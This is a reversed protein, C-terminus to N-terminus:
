GIQNRSSPKELLLVDLQLSDDRMNEFEMQGCIDTSKWVEM